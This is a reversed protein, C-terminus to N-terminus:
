MERADLHVRAVVYFAQRTRVTQCKAMYHEWTVDERTVPIQSHEKHLRRAQGEGLNLFHKM